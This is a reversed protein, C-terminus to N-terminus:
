TEDEVVPIDLLELIPCRGSNRRTRIICIKCQNPANALQVGMGFSPSHWVWCDGLAGEDIYLENMKAYDYIRERREQVTMKKWKEWLEEKTMKM